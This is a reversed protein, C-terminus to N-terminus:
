VWEDKCCPGKEPFPFSGEELPLRSWHQTEWERKWSGPHSRPVDRVRELALPGSKEM